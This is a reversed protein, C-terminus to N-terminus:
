IELECVEAGGARAQWQIRRGNEGRSVWSGGM